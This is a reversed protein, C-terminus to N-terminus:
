FFFRLYTGMRAGCAEGGPSRNFSMAGLVDRDCRSRIGPTASTALTLARGRLEVLHGNAVM